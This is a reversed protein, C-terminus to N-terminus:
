ICFDKNLVWQVKPTTDTNTQPNDGRNNIKSGTQKVKRRAPDLSTLQVQLSLFIYLVYIGQLLTSGKYMLETHFVSYSLFELNLRVFGYISYNGIKLGGRWLRPMITYCNSKGSCICDTDIVVLTKIEFGVWALYVWYLMIHNLQWQSAAPGHNEGSEEVLLVSRWSIDSINNFTANVM